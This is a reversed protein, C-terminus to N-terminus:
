FTGSASADDGLLYMIGLIATGVAVHDWAINVPYGGLRGTGTQGIVVQANPRIATLPTTNAPAAVVVPDSLQPLPGDALGASGM